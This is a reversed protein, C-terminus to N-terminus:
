GSKTYSNNQRSLGLLLHGDQLQWYRALIEKRPYYLPFTLSSWLQRLLLTESSAPRMIPTCPWTARARQPAAADAGPHDGKGESGRRLCSGYRSVWLLKWGKAKTVRAPSPPSDLDGWWCSGDSIPVSARVPRSSPLLRIFGKIQPPYFIGGGELPGPPLGLPLPPRATDGRTGGRGGAGRGARRGRPAPRCPSCRSM